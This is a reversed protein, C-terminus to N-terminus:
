NLATDGALFQVAQNLMARTVEHGVGPFVQLSCRVGQSRLADVFELARELRTKGEYVDWQHPVDGASNDASGVGILFRVQKLRLPNIPHGLRKNFDASGYPLALMDPRGDGDIDKTRYPMTYTGASFAVVRDVDEPFFLAFRHAVQAGRSFGILDVHPKLQLHTREPLANITAVLRQAIEVDEAAVEDPNHWDGYAFTPAVLLWGNREAEQVLPAAFDKGAGGVGHLAIVVQLPQAAAAKTPVYTFPAASDATGAPAVRAAAATGGSLVFQSEDIDNQQSDWGFYVLTTLAILAAVTLKFKM